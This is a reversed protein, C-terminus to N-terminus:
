CFHTVGRFVLMDELFASWKWLFSWRGLMLKRPIYTLKWFPLTGFELVVKSSSQPANTQYSQKGLPKLNVSISRIEPNLAHNRILGLWSVLKKLRFISVGRAVSWVYFIKLCVSCPMFLDLNERRRWAELNCTGLRHVWIEQVFVVWWDMGRIFWGSLIHVLRPPVLFEFTENFFHPILTKLHLLPLDKLYWDPKLVLSSYPSCPYHTLTPRFKGSFWSNNVQM